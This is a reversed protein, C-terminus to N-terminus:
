PRSNFVFNSLNSRLNNTTMVNEVFIFVIQSDSLFDTSGM